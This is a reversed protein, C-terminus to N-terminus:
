SYQAPQLNEIQQWLNAFCTTVVTSEAWSDLKGKFPFSIM